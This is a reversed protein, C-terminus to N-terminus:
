VLRHLWLTGGWKTGKLVPCGAHLSYEDLSFDPRMDYFCATSGKVPKAKLGTDCASYNAPNPGKNARPFWTEGGEEVDDLYIFCTIARNTKQGGYLQPDFYDHHADYKQNMQYRLVQLAEHDHVGFGTTALIRAMLTRVEPVSETLWTHSSTRINQITSDKSGKHPVVGSRSIHHDAAHIIADCEEPTAMKEFFYVKPIHSLIVFPLQEGKEKEMDELYTMARNGKPPYAYRAEDRLPNSVDYSAEYHKGQIPNITYLPDIKADLPPVIHCSDPDQRLVRFDSVDVWKGGEAVQWESLEDPSRAGKKSVLEGKGELAARSGRSIVWREDPLMAMFNTEMAWAGGVRKYVPSGNVTISTFFYFGMSPKDGAGVGTVFFCPHTGDTMVEHDPDEEQPDQVARKEKSAERKSAEKAWQQADQQRARMEADHKEKKVRVREEEFREETLRQKEKLKNLEQALNDNQQRLEHVSVAEDEGEAARRRPEEPPPAGESFFLWLILILSVFPFVVLKYPVGGSAM